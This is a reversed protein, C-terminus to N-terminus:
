MHILMFFICLIHDVMGKYSFKPILKLEAKHSIYTKLNDSSWFSFFALM